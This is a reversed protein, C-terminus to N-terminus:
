FTLKISLFVSNLTPGALDYLSDEPGFMAEYGARIRIGDAPMYTIGPRLLWEETTLNYVVPFGIELQDHWLFLKGALFVSHYNEELQYNYLRNFAGIRDRVGQDVEESTPLTGQEILDMFQGPDASLYAEAGSPEYALIHKGYYGTILNLQSGMWEAEATYTLEPWPIYEAIGAEEGSQQWAGEGRIIFSGAPISFDLAAKRIEYAKEYLVLSEPELTSFDVQLSGYALGPWHSYGEFWYLSLDFFSTFLDYNLGYNSESIDVGPFVPDSFEVYGPLPLPGILLKSAQYLPNWNVTFRSFSGLNVSSEIAWVGNYIDNEEPSRVTPDMPALSHAPNFVSGKGWLNIMKGLRFSAPGATVKVWAERLEMVAVSERFESGYRFRLEAHASAMSGAAADMLLGAQAYLGQFYYTDDEASQSLYSVSRIFGGLTLSTSVLNEHNGSQSSEFLSQANAGPHVATLIIFSTFVWGTRRCM